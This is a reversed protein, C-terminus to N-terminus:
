PRDTIELASADALTRLEDVVRNLERSLHGPYRTRFVEALVGYYWLQEDKGANFRSWLEDGMERYDRLIARANHLRDACAVRLVEPPSERLHEIYREKRPRWEPKPRETTDTCAEVIRAVKEGFRTRIDRLTVEGGRDEAADHLLAAIAEDEDGGDEVVMAAVGMLHAVYPINTGKRTQGAHLEFAYGIAELFRSSVTNSRGTM